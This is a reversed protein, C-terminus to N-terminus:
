AEKGTRSAAVEIVDALEIVVLPSNLKEVLVDLLTGLFVRLLDKSDSLSAALAGFGTKELQYEIQRQSLVPVAISSGFSKSVIGYGPKDDTGCAKSASAAQITGMSGDDIQTLTMGHTARFFRM